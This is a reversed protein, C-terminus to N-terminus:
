SIKGTGHLEIVNISGSLQHLNDINQTIIYQLKGMKQLETLAFHAKTPKKDDTVRRLETSMRWFMEPHTLFNTHNAYIKPDYKTWLGDRSRFDPIGAAVSIGAGTLICVNNAKSIVRALYKCNMEIEEDSMENFFDDM